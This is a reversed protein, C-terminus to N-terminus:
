CMPALPNQLVWDVATSIPIFFIKNTHSSKIEIDNGICSLGHPKGGRGANKQERAAATKLCPKM